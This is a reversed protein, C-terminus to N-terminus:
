GRNKGTDNRTVWALGIALDAPRVAHKRVSVDAPYQPFPVSLM